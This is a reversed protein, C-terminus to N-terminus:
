RKALEQPDLTILHGLPKGNRYTIVRLTVPGEPLVVPGSYKMTKSDPMTDDITYFIELGPMETDMNVTMKGATRAVTIIADYVALSHNIGALDDRDFQKEARKVFGTWEKSEKPSWLVEALAWGRPWTMYEAHRFTPVQETWLNAQGGLIHKAVAGEPVPEFSYCTNMRLGAYLPPEITQDGQQYDIYCYQLPSMIVDHGMRSAEIGGQLSRWSMLTADPSIGGELIEDWGLLKKGKAKLISEIRNMFYGQLDEVHRINLKKMLAQCGEDQLWYGKYCEDGGVHIYQAPFIAALETFVKDLFQYVKEDSPNLTNDVLMKFTGNGYWESFPTGPNVKADPNKTCSLEPYSAVAALSHGPTEIEPIITVFRDQAYRIIEKMDEQTYFGGVTAKEGPKPDSREGFHGARPVRWAGVETLKPLSKIEIRWGNDDTLHLHLTNYKFRSIQDIYQMVEEKTFFNRSVDLMMGRWSFRPYDTIKVCPLTWKIKVASKSEIEPPLLQLLTQAGYFLGAPENASIVVGKSSSVFSYGERGLKEVPGKNLNLQISGSTNQESKISFGTATKLKAAMLEAIKRCEQNSYSIKSSSSLQFSGGTKQIEAPQPILNIASEQGYTMTCVFILAFFSLKKIM